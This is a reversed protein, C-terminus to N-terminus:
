MHCRVNPNNAKAKKAAEEAKAVISKGGDKSPGGQLAIVQAGSKEALEMPNNEGLATVMADFGDDTGNSLSLSLAKDSCFQNALKTKVAPSIKGGEVLRNLKMDRNESVLKVMVPDAKRRRSSSASIVKDKDKDDEDGEAAVAEKEKEKEEETQMAAADGAKKKLDVIAAKIKEEANEPTVDTLGLLEIIQEITMKKNETKPNPALSAAIAEFCGLGTVLPNTCLAVHTIPWDYENGLGDTHKKPTYISVDSSAALVDADKGILDIIGILSNGDRFMDVVWGRNNEPNDAGDHTLPVPVKNGSASWQSFAIAWHNLMDQTVEFEIGDSAKVYHGTKILEKRYRKVPVGNEVREASLALAPQSKHILLFAGDGPNPTKTGQSKKSFTLHKM